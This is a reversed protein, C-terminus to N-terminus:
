REDGRAERVTSHEQGKAKSHNQKMWYSDVLKLADEREKSEMPIDAITIVFLERSRTAVRSNFFGLQDLDGDPDLPDRADRPDYQPNSMDRRPESDLQKALRQRENTRPRLPGRAKRRDFDVWCWGLVLGLAVASMEATLYVPWIVFFYSLLILFTALITSIVVKPFYRRLRLRLWKVGSWLLAYIILTLLLMPILVHIRDVQIQQPVWTEPLESPKVERPKPPQQTLEPFPKSQKQPTSQNAEPKESTAQHSSSAANVKQPTSNDHQPKFDM